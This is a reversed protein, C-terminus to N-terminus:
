FTTRSAHAVLTLCVSPSPPGARRVPRTCRTQVPRLTPRSAHKAACTVQSSRTRTLVRLCVVLVVLCCTGCPTCLPVKLQDLCIGCTLTDMDLAPRLPLTDPGDRVSSRALPEFCLASPNPLSSPSPSLCPGGARGEGPFARGGSVTVHGHSDGQKCGRCGRCPPINRKSTVTGTALAVPTRIRTAQQPTRQSRGAM